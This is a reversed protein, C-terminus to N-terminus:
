IKSFSKVSIRDGLSAKLFYVGDMFESVSIKLVTGEFDYNENDLTKVLQGKSDYISASNFHAKNQGLDVHLVEAVPNPYLLIDESLNEIEEKCADKIKLTNSPFFHISFPATSNYNNILIYYQSDDKLTLPKLFNDQADSCGNPETMDQSTDKLGTIGLCQQDEQGLMQGSTMFRIPILDECPDNGNAEFVVFDLDDDENTPTIYFELTGGKEIDLMLWTSHTETFHAQRYPIKNSAIKQPHLTRENFNCLKLAEYCKSPIQSFGSSTFTVCLCVLQMVLVTTKIAYTM